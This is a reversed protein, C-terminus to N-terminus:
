RHAKYGYILGTAGFILAVGLLAREWRPASGAATVASTSQFPEPVTIAIEKRHGEEDDLVVRWTGGGEPVFSFYGRRDTMGTQYEQESQSPSFVQVKAFAVPETGGYVARVIVSPAALTVTADLDHAVSFCPVLLIAALAFIMRM